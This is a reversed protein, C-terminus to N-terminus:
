LHGHGAGSNARQGTGNFRAELGRLLERITEAFMLAGACGIVIVIFAALPVKHLWHWGSDAFQPWDYPLFLYALAALPIMSLAVFILTTTLVSDGADHENARWRAVTYTMLFYAAFGALALPFGLVFFKPRVVAMVPQYAGPVVSQLETTRDSQRTQLEEQRTMIASVDDELQQATAKLSVTFSLTSSLLPDQAAANVLRNSSTASRPAAVVKTGFPSTYALLLNDRFSRLTGDRGTFSALWTRPSPQVAVGAGTEMIRVVAGVQAEIKDLEAQVLQETSLDAEQTSAPSSGPSIAFEQRANAIAGTVAGRADALRDKLALQEATDFDADIPEIICRSVLDRWHEEVAQQAIWTHVDADDDACTQLFAPIAPAASGNGAAALAQTYADLAIVKRLAREVQEVVRQKWAPSGDEVMQDLRDVYGEVLVLSRVQGSFQEELQDDAVVMPTYELTLVFLVVFLLAAIRASQLVANRRQLYQGRYDPPPTPTDSGRAPDTHSSDTAPHTSPVDPPPPEDREGQPRIFAGVLVFPAVLLRGLWGALSRPSTPSQGM